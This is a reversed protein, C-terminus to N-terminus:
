QGSFKIFFTAVTHISSFLIANSVSLWLATSFRTYNIFAFSVILCVVVVVFLIGLTIAVYTHQHLNILYACVTCRGVWGVGGVLLVVESGWYGSTVAFLFLSSRGSGPNSGVVKQNCTYHRSWEVAKSYGPGVAHKISSCLGHTKSYQTNWPVM